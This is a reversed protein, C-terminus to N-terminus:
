RRRRARKRGAGQRMRRHDKMRGDCVFLQPVLDRRGADLRKSALNGGVCLSVPSIICRLILVRETRLRAARMSTTEASAAAAHPDLELLEEDLEDDGLVVEVWGDVELVELELLM